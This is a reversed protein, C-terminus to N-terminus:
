SRDRPSQNRARLRWGVLRPSPDAQYRSSRDERMHAPAAKPHSGPACTRRSIDATWRRRFSVDSLVRGRMLRSRTFGRGESAFLATGFADDIRRPVSPEFRRGELPSDLAFRLQARTRWIGRSSASIATSHRRSQPMGGADDGSGRRGDGHRIGRSFVPRSWRRRCVWRWSPPASSRWPGIDVRRQASLRWRRGGPADVAIVFRGHV